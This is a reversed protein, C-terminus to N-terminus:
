QLAFQHAIERMSKIFNEAYPNLTIVEAGIEDAILRAGKNSYQMQIYVKKINFQRAENLLKTLQQPTPDKGEFEISLQTLHYDRCFYAYAPHSVMVKRLKLDKLIASIEQDLSDLEQLFNNLNSKYLAKNEPYKASLGTAITIAQKKAERVSLWIHLDASSHHCCKCHSGYSDDSILNVGERMDIFSMKSNHSKLSKIAKGEFSEGLFFWIDAQCASMMQKPSPEYTHASVGAPVMLNVSVTDEAIKEVFFKHPAVSVLITPKQMETSVASCDLLIILSLAFTLLFKLM